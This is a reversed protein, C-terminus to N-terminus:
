SERFADKIHNLSFTNNEVNILIEIVDFRVFFMSFNKHNIYFKAMKIINKVKSKSLALLPSGYNKSTRTKVEIFVLIENEFAIIDLEGYRNQFNKDSIKYNLTRIYDTALNEGYFGINKNFTKM